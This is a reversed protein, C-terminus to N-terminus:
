RSLRQSNSDLLVPASVYLLSDTLMASLEEADTRNQGTGALASFRTRREESGLDPVDEQTISRHRLEELRGAPVLGSIAIDGMSTRAARPKRLEIPKKSTPAKGFFMVALRGVDDLPLAIDRMFSLVRPDFGYIFRAFQDIRKPEATSVQNPNPPTITGDRRLGDINLPRPPRPDSGGPFNHRPM